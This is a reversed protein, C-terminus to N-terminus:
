LGKAVYGPPVSYQSGRFSIFNSRSVKAKPHDIKYPDRIVKTPLPTLFEKEKEIMSCPCRKTVQSISLNSRFIIHQIKEELQPLTLQGQYAYIEDLIKMQSEVKGKTQPRCAMCPKFTFNFDKSLELMNPHIKGSRGSIRPELMITKMNDTLITTSVGDIEEFFGVLADKLTDQTRDFTVKAFKYRSFSLTLLLVNFIVHTGDALLM